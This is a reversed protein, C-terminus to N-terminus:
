KDRYRKMISILFPDRVIDDETFHVFGIGELGDLKKIADALGNIENNRLSLDCQDPDGLLIIKSNEGLRSLYTKVEMPTINQVEDLICFTGVPNGFDDYKGFTSGRMFHIIKESILGSSVLFNRVKVGVLKDMNDYFHQFYNSLKSDLDGPLAGIKSPLVPSTLLIDGIGSKQDKLIELGTKIAIYTKGSGPSGTVITIRNNRITDAMEKQKKNKYKGRIVYKLDMLDRQESAKIDDFENLLKQYEEKKTQKRAM